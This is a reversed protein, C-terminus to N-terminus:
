SRSGDERRGGDGPRRGARGVLVRLSFSPEESAALVVPPGAPTARAAELVAFVHREVEERAPERGDWVLQVGLAGADRVAEVLEPLRRASRGTVRVVVIAGVVGGAGLRALRKRTRLRVVPVDLPPVADVARRLASAIAEAMAASLGPDAVAVGVTAELPRAVLRTVTGPATV